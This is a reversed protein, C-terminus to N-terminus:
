QLIMRRVYPVDNILLKVIYNGSPIDNRKLLISQEGAPFPKPDVSLVSRGLMDMVQVSVNKGSPLSFRIRAEDQSPNPYIEFSYNETEINSIATANDLNINDIYLNNGGDGTFEFKFRVSPNGAYALLNLVSDVRWQSNSSPKYSTAVLGANALTSGKKSYKLVWKEGCDMSAYIKLLDNNLTTKRACSLRFSLVPRTTNSFDFQPTIFADVSGAPNSFNNMKMCKTSNYGANNIIGWANAADPNSLLWSTNPFAMTEFGESFTNMPIATSKSNVSIANTKTLIKSGGNNFANLTVNYVGATNYQIIPNKANSNPPTGGPFLWAYNITDANWSLDNFSVNGGECIMSNDFSFDTVPKCQQSTYGANTGTAILNSASWLNNRDGISSNLAIQMRDRQGKTFMNSCFSYEMYNQVNDIPSGCTGVNLDCKVHGITNPTDGVNDDDGCNIPMAPDNTNGWTHILNLYHGIEHTLSRYDSIQSNRIIVGEHKTDFVGPYASYGGAGSAITQVM